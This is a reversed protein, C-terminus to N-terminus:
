FHHFLPPQRSSTTWRQETYFLLLRNMDVNRLQNYFRSAQKLHPSQWDRERCLGRGGGGEGGRRRRKKKKSSEEREERRKTGSHAGMYACLWVCLCVIQDFRVRTDSFVELSLANKRIFHAHAIDANMNLMTDKSSRTYKYAQLQNVPVKRALGPGRQSINFDPSRFM